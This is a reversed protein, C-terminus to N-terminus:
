GSIEKAIATFKDIIINLTSKQALSAHSGKLVEITINPYKNKPFTKIWTKYQGFTDDDFQILSINQDKPIDPIFQGMDGNTLTPINAAEFLISKPSLNLTNLCNLSLSGLLKQINKMEKLVLNGSQLIDSLQLPEPYCPSVAVSYPINNKFKNQCAINGLLVMAGRSEGYGIMTQNDLKFLDANKHVTSSYVCYNILNLKKLDTILKKPDNILGKIEKKFSDRESGPMGVLISPLGIKALEKQIVLNRGHLGTLLAPAMIVPIDTIQNNPYCVNLGIKTENDLELRYMNITNNDIKYSEKLRIDEITILRINEQSEFRETLDISDIDKSNTLASEIM